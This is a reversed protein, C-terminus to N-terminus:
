FQNIAVTSLNGCCFYIDSSNDTLDITAIEPDYLQYKSGQKELLILKHNTHEYTLHVLCEAKLLMEKYEPSCDHLSM